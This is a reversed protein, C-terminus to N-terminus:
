VLASKDDTLDLPMWRVANDHSFRFIGILLVLNFIGNKSDFESRGSVLSNFSSRIAVALYGLGWCVSLQIVPSKLDDHRALSAM